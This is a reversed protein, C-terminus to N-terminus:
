LTQQEQVPPWQLVIMLHLFFLFNYQKCFVWSLDCGELQNDWSDPVAFCHAIVPSRRILQRTTM